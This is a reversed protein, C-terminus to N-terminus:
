NARPIVMGPPAVAIQPKAAQAALDALLVEKATEMLGRIFIPDAPGAYKVGVRGGGDVTVLVRTEQM